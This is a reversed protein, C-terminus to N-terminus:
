MGERACYREGLWDTVWTRAVTRLATVDVTADLWVIRPHKLEALKRFYSRIGDNFDADTYISGEEFKGRNRGDITERSVELYLVFDPWVPIASRYIIDRASRLDGLRIVQELSHCHALLTHVSRDILILDWESTASRVHMTREAEISLFKELAREEEAVSNPVPPPLFRGGGVQDAYDKVSAVSLWSFEKALGRTLTTKGACCPGEIAVRGPRGKM